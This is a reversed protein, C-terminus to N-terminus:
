MLHSTEQPQTRLDYTSLHDKNTFVFRGNVGNADLILVVKKGWIVAKQWVTQACSAYCWVDHM